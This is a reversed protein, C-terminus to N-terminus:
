FLYADNWDVEVSAPTLAGSAIFRLLNNGPQLPAWTTQTFDLFSYRNANSDNNLYVTKNRTDVQLYDGAVVTIGTFVIQGSGDQWYIAPNSLPGFIRLVPWTPYDGANNITGLGAGGYGTPYSVPYTKPYARGGFNGFPPISLIHAAGYAVPDVAKWSATFATYGPMNVPASFDFSRIGISRAVQDDDFQYTLTSRLNPRIFKQINALAQARSGATAAFATGKMTIVRPGFYQTYDTSGDGTPTDKVVERHVPIGMNIESIALGNTLRDMLDISNASNSLLLIM